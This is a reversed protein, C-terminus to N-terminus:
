ADFLRQELADLKAKSTAKYIAEVQLRVDPSAAEVARLVLDRQRRYRENWSKYAAQSQKLKKTADHIMALDVDGGGLGLLNALSRTFRAFATNASGQILEINEERFAQIIADSAGKVLAKKEENTVRGYQRQHQEILQAYNTAEHRLYNFAERASYDDPVQALLEPNVLKVTRRLQQATTPPQSVMTKTEDANRQM